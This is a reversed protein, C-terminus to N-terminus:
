LSLVLHALKIKSNHHQGYKTSVPKTTNAIAFLMVKLMGDVPM